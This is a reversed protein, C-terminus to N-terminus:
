ALAPKLTSGLLLAMHPLFPCTADSQCFIFFTGVQDICTGLLCTLWCQFYISITPNGIKTQFEQSKWNRQQLMHFLVNKQGSVPSCAGSVTSTRASAFVRQRYFANCYSAGLLEEYPISNPGQWPACAHMRCSPGLQVTSARSPRWRAAKARWCHQSVLPIRRRFSCTDGRM